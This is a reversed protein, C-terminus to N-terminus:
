KGNLEKLITEGNVSDWFNKYEKMGDEISVTGLIIQSTVAKWQDTISASVEDYTTSIGSPIAYKPGKVAQAEEIITKQSEMSDMLEKKAKFKTEINDIFSDYLYTYTPAYGSNTAKETPVLYGDADVEYHAGEVGVNWFAPYVEPDMVLTEILEIAKEPNKCDASICLSTQVSENLGGGEGNPGMLCYIAFVDTSAGAAESQTIYNTYNTIYDIDCAAKGTYVYERMTANETTIFEKDMIGLDYLSKVYALADYMEPEQFGDVYVGEENKYIGAYAGFSNFFYQFNDIWKPFSFPIIGTDKLKSLETIFEETTPTHSLNIDYKEMIDKRLYLCKVKPYVYPVHYTKGDVRLADYLSDDIKSLKESKAIYDDLALVKGRVVYNPLRTMAQSVCFVDPVDNGAIMTDLKENYSGLPPIISTIEINTKEELLKEVAQQLDADTSLGFTNDASCLTLAVTDGGGNSGTSESGCAAMSLMMTGTLALGIVKQFMRKKRM